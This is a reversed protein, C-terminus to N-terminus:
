GKLYRYDGKRYTVGVRDLYELIPIAYKRSINLLERLESATAMERERLFGEVKERAIRAGESIMWINEDIKVVDGKKQLASLLELIKGKGSDLQAALKGLDPPSLPEGSLISLIEDALADTGGSFVIEHSALKVEGGALEVKGQEMLRSLVGELLTISFVARIRHRLEDRRVGQQLPNENHYIELEQLVRASLDEFVSRHYLEGKLDIIDGRQELEKLIEGVKRPGVGSDVPLRNMPYGGLGLDRVIAEVIEDESGDRLSELHRKDRAGVRTRKKAYPMLIIGGGITTLPSYSRIVFHDGYRAVVPGELRVQVFARDGESLDSGELLVVRAMVEQTALHFRVRTRNKLPKTGHPLYHIYGEIMMSPKWEEAQLATSGREIEERSIGSLALAVRTGASADPQDESHVQISKVRATRGSPYVTLMQDVKVSGSWVTGTVVTGRGKITFVRDIPLRFLDDSPKAEIERAVKLLTERLEELGRGTRTSTIVVQSREMFTGKMLNRSDEVILDLWDDEVLDAKTIVLIGQKVELFRLIDLHETTQPMVGEDAAIVFLVLDVGTVGALMNRIFAEHGPVDVVGLLLEEGKLPFRAFGLDISIGREKEDKLRDTDVGTLAKILETKGHDIHGATGIILNRM